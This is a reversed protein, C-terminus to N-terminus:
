FCQMKTSRRQEWTSCRITLKKSPYTPDLFKTLNDNLATLLKQFQWPITFTTFTKWKNTSRTKTLSGIARHSRECNERPSFLCPGDQLLTVVDNLRSFFHFIVVSKEGNWLPIARNSTSPKCELLKVYVRYYRLAKWIYIINLERRMSCFLERLKVFFRCKQVESDRSKRSVFLLGLFPKFLFAPKTKWIM